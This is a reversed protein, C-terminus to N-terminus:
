QQRRHGILTIPYPDAGPLTVSFALTVTQPVSAGDCTTPSACSVTFTSPDVDHAVVIDTTAAGTCVLRHLDSAPGAAALYYAVVRTTRTSTSADWDDALLRVKAAPTASTGCTEGGANFAADVQISAKFPITGDAATGPFNRLGVAAVDRAVYAASIQADRSLTMRATTADTNRFYLILAESLPVVIIATLVIVLLLEILTFGADDRAARPTLRM